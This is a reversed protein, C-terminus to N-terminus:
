KTVRRVIIVLVVAVTAAVAAAILVPVAHPRAAEGLVASVVDGAVDAGPKADVKDCGGKDNPFTGPPCAEPIFPLGARTTSDTLPPEGTAATGSPEPKTPSPSAVPKLPTSATGATSGTPTTVSSVPRTLNAAILNSRIAEGSLGLLGRGALAREAVAAGALANDACNGMGLRRAVRLGAYSIKVTEPAYGWVRMYYGGVKDACGECDVKMGICPHAREHAVIAARQAESCGNWYARDIRTTEGDKSTLARQEAVEPVDDVFTCHSFADEYTPVSLIDPYKPTHPCATM